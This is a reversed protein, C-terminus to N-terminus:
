AAPAVPRRLRELTSAVSEADFGIETRDTFMKRHRGWLELAKTRDILKLKKTTVPVADDGSEDMREEVEIAAVSMAVDDPLDHVDVPRGTATFM